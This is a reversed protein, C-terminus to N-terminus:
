YVLSFQILLSPILTFRKDISRFTAPFWTMVFLRLTRRGSM